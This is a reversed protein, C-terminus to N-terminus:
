NRILVKSRGNAVGEGRSSSRKRLDVYEGQKDGGEMEEDVVEDNWEEKRTSFSPRRIL